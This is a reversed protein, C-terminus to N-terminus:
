RGSTTAATRNTSTPPLRWCRAGMPRGAPLDHAARGPSSKTSSRTYPPILLDMMAAFLKRFIDLGHHGQPNLYQLLTNM